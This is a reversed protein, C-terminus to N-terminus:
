LEEAGKGGVMVAKRGKKGGVRVAKEDASAKQRHKQAKAFFVKELMHRSLEACGPM